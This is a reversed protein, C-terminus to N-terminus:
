YSSLSQDGRGIKGNWTGFSEYFIRNKSPSVTQILWDPGIKEIKLLLFNLHHKIETKIAEKQEKNITKILLHSM